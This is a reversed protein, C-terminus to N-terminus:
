RQSPDSFITLVLDSLLYHLTHFCGYSEGLGFQMESTIDTKRVAVRLLETKPDFPTIDLAFTNDPMKKLHWWNEGILIAVHCAAFLLGIEVTEVARGVKGIMGGWKAVKGVVHNPMRLISTLSKIPRAVIYVDQTAAM